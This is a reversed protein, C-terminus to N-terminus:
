RQSVESSAAAEAARPVIPRYGVDALHPCGSANAYEQGFAATISRLPPDPLLRRARLYTRLGGIVVASLVPHPDPYGHARRLEPGLLAHFGRIGLPRLPSPLYRAVYDGIVADAVARGARTPAWHEAEYARSYALADAYDEPLETIGMEQGVAIWFRFRAEDEAWSMSRYGIVEASREPEDIITCLTYRYDDQTITFHGHIEQLRAITERGRGSAAGSSFIEGFIVLTDDNRKRVGDARGSPGGGGRYLVRAISPVAAQRVFTSTYFAAAIPPWGFRAEAVLRSIRDYDVRPDLRAIEDRAWTYGRWGFM